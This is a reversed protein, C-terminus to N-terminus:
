TSFSKPRCPRTTALTSAPSGPVPQVGHYVSPPVLENEVAWKFMLKIRRVHKNVYNRSGGNDVMAQRVARLALPGFDNAATKGYLRNLPRLALRFLKVEKTPTGDPYRYYTIVHQWFRVILQAVLLEDANSLRPVHRGHALWRSILEDYRERSIKTGHLGLYHDRGNLTVVAQGTPKHLRYSPNKPIRPM